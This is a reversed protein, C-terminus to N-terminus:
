LMLPAKPQEAAKKKESVGKTLYSFPHGKSMANSVVGTAADHDDSMVKLLRGMVSRVQKEEMSSNKAMTPAFSWYMQAADNGGNPYKGEKGEKKPTGGKHGEQAGAQARDGVPAQFDDYNCITTVPARHAGHQTWKQGVMNGAKLRQLMNRVRKHSWGFEEALKRTGIVLEGRDLKYVRDDYRREGARWNAKLVLYGFFMAEGANRFTPNELISRYIRVYGGNDDPM